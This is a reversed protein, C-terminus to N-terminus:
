VMRNGCAVCCGDYTMGREQDCGCCYAPNFQTYDVPCSITAEMKLNTRLYIVLSIKKSFCSDSLPDIYVEELYVGVEKLITQKRPHILRNFMQGHEYGNDSAIERSKHPKSLRFAFNSAHSSM